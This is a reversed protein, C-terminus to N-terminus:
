KVVKFDIKGLAGFDAQYNGAEAPLMKGLAGTILLQDKKLPYGQKLLSQVLWLLAQWQDNLADSGLGQNITKNNHALTVILQNLDGAQDNAVPAGVIFSRSAVNAAIIDVGKLRQPQEFGLDPLEIVPVIAKVYNLLQEKNVPVDTIDTALIFGIETELMLKGFNGLKLQNDAQHEGSQFLAGYLAGSVGFKQQGAESTLGAKYGALADQQLRLEVYAKQIAYATREPVETTSQLSIQPIPNQQQWADYLTKAFQEHQAHGLSCLTVLTLTILLRM